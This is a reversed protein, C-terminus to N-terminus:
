WGSLLAFPLKTEVSYAHRESARVSTEPDDTVIFLINPRDGAAAKASLLSAGYLIAILRSFHAILIQMTNERILIPGIKEPKPILNQCVDIRNDCNCIM